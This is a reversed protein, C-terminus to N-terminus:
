GKVRYVARGRDGIGEPCWPRIVVLRNQPHRAGARGSLGAWPATTGGCMRRIVGIPIDGEHGVVVPILGGKRIIQRTVEFSLPDVRDACWLLASHSGGPM